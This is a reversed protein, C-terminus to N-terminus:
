TGCYIREIEFMVLCKDNYQNDGETCDENILYIPKLNFPPIMLNIPRWGGDQIDSNFHWKTFSTTLLYKSKSKVINEIALHVNANSLHGLIDRALILDVKPLRDKTIDMVKFNLSEFRESNKFIIEDVIDAGTYDIGTLDVHRMWNMDGCPIDLMSWIGFREFVKELEDIVTYTNRVESGSGSRSEKSAWSNEDYVGTFIEKLNM